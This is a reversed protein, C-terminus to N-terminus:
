VVVTYSCGDGRESLAVEQVGKKEGCTNTIELVFCDSYDCEVHDRKM